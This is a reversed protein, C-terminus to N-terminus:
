IGIERSKPSHQSVLILDFNILCFGKWVDFAGHSDVSSKNSWKEHRCTFTHHCLLFVRRAVTPKCIGIWFGSTATTSVIGNAGIMEGTIPTALASRAIFCCDFPFIIKVLPPSNVFISNYSSFPHGITEGGMFDIAVVISRAILTSGISELIGKRRVQPPRKSRM